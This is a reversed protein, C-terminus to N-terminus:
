SYRIRRALQTQPLGIESGCKNPYGPLQWVSTETEDSFPNPYQDNVAFM